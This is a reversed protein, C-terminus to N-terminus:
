YLYFRLRVTPLWKGVTYPIHATFFSGPVTPCSGQSLMTCANGTLIPIPPLFTPQGTITLPLTNSETEIKLLHIVKSFTLGLIKSVNQKYILFINAFRKALILDQDSREKM